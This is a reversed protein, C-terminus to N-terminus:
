AGFRVSLGLSHQQTELAFDSDGNRDDIEADDIGLFRYGLELDTSAGLGFRVGARIQWAFFPGDEASFSALSDSATGVDLWGVGLGGGIFLETEEAIQLAVLGNLLVAAVNLDGIPNTAASGDGDQSTYLSELELDLMMGDDTAGFHRRGLALQLGWGEDFEIEDNPGDASRTTVVSAGVSLYWPSEVGLREDDVAFRSPLSSSSSPLPVSTVSPTASPPPGNSQPLAGLAATLPIILMSM